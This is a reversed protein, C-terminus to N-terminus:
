NANLGNIPPIKVEKKKTIRVTIFRAVLRFLFVLLFGWLASNIFMVMFDIHANTRDDLGPFGNDPLFYQMPFAVGFAIKLWLPDPTTVLGQDEVSALYLCLMVTVIFLIPALVLVGVIYQNLRTM